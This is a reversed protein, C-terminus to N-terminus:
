HNCVTTDNTFGRIAKLLMCEFDENSLGVLNPGLERLLNLVRISAHLPQWHAGKKKLSVEIGAITEDIAENLESM